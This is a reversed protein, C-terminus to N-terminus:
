VINRAIFSYAEQVPQGDIVIERSSGLIYVDSLKHITHNVSNDAAFDGFSIYMDFPSLKSDDARRTADDLEMQNNQWVSDEFAEFLNESVTGATKARELSPYGSLSAAVHNLDESQALGLADASALQQLYLNREFNSVLATDNNIVHEISDRVASDSAFFPSTKKQLFSGKNHMIQRYRNLVLFLYGAEKFNITFQGQVLVKGKAVDRFYTDNYGYLPARSQQVSYAISTIEDIWVDGIYVSVQAGSFYETNYIGPEIAM